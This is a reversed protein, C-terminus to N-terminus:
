FYINFKKNLIVDVITQGPDIRGRPIGGRDNRSFAFGCGRRNQFKMNHVTYLCVTIVVPRGIM